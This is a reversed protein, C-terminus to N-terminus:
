DGLAIKLNVFDTVLLTDTDIPHRRGSFSYNIMFAVCMDFRSNLGLHTLKMVLFRVLEALDVRCSFKKEIVCYAIHHREQIM